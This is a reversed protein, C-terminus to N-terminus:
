EQDFPVVETILPLLCEEIISDNNIDNGNCEFGYDKYYYVASDIEGILIYNEIRLLIIDEYDFSTDYQFIFPNDIYFSYTISQRYLSDIEGSL